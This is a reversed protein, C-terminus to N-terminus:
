KEGGTYPRSQAIRATINAAYFGAWAQDTIFTVNEANNEDANTSYNFSGGIVTQGDIVMVKNHAIKPKYDIWVPIGAEYSPEAGEDKQTPSIKDLVMRVIVGRRKAAIVAAIIRPETYNYAQVDLTHQASNIVSLIPLACDEGALTFCVHKEGSTQMAAAPLTLCTTLLVATLTPLRTM